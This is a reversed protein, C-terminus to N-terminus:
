RVVGAEKLYREAGPHLPVVFLDKEYYARTQELSIAAAAPHIKKLDDPHTLLTRTLQYIMQADADKGTVVLGHRGAVPAPEPQGPYTGAELIVARWVPNAREFRAIADASDFGLIRGGVTSMFEMTSQNQRHVVMYGADINNDRLGNVQETYSLFRHTYDAPQIGHAALVADMALKSAPSSVGIRKGKLAAVSTIGSDRRVLFADGIDIFAMVSRLNTLKEKFEGEGKWARDVTDLLSAAVTLEGSNVLRVAHASGKTTEVAAQIGGSRDELVKAMAAIVTYYTGGPAGGGMTIRTAAQAALVVGLGLSAVLMAITVRRLTSGRMDAEKEPEAARSRGAGEDGVTLTSQIAGREAAAPARLRSGGGTM